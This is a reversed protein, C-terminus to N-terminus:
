ARRPPSKLGTPTVSAAPREMPVIPPVTRRAALHGAALKECEIVWADYRTTEAAWREFDPDAKPKRARGM